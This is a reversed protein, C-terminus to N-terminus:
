PAEIEWEAEFVGDTSEIGAVSGLMVTSKGVTITQGVPDVKWCVGSM